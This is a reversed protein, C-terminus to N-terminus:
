ELNFENQEGTEITLKAVGNKGAFPRARELREPRFM